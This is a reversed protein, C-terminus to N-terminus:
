LWCSSELEVRRDWTKIRRLWLIISEYTM